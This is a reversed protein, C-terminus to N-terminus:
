NIYRFFKRQVLFILGYIVIIFGFMIAMTIYFERWVADSIGPESLLDNLRVYWYTPIMQAYRLVNEGLMFQPVFVGGIFAFALPLVTALGNQVETSSVFIGIGYAIALAIQAFVFANVVLLIGSTTFLLDGYFFYAILMFVLWLLCAVVINGMIIQRNYKWSSIPACFSRMKVNKEYYNKMIFAVSGIIAALLGYAVFNFYLNAEDAMTIAEEEYQYDVAVEAELDEALYAVIEDDSLDTELYLSMLNLYKNILIEVNIASVREPLSFFQVEADEGARLQQSFDEDIVVAAAIEAFFLEDKIEDETLEKVAAHEALFDELGQALVDEDHNIITIIPRMMRFDEQPTTQATFIVTMFITIGLFIFITLYASRLLKFYNKFVTM